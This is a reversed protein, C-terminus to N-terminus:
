FSNYTVINVVKILNFKKKKDILNEVMIKLQLFLNIVELKKHMPYIWCFKSFDDEFFLYYKYGEISAMPALRWVGFFVLELLASIKSAFPIAFIHQRKEIPM